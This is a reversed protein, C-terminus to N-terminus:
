NWRYTEVPAKPDKLWEEMSGDYVKVNEYGFVQSLLFWWSAAFGGVGCYILVEKSKKTGIVGAAMVRLDEFDRFTGDEAFIWPAPLNVAGKIHGPKSTIGFYDEPVRADVIISKGLRSSVYAKSAVWSKNPLGTFIARNPSPIDTSIIKGESRWKNYGGNLVAVKKLGAVMCTWAVRATDARGFDTEVRNVIVLTSSAADQIGLNGLLDKLAADPPLELSLGNGGPTWLSLPASICGPIHGKKFQEASRIDLITIEPKGLNKSLWDTSVIAQFDGSWACTITLLSFAPLLLIHRLNQM